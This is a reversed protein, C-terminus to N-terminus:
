QNSSLIDRGGILRTDSVKVFGIGEGSTYSQELQYCQEVKNEEKIRIDKVQTAIVESNKKFRPKNLNSDFRVGKETYVYSDNKFLVHAYNSFLHLPQRLKLKVNKFSIFEDKEKIRYFYESGNSYDIMEDFDDINAKRDLIIKKGSKLYKNIQKGHSDYLKIKLFGGFTETTANVENIYLFNGNVKDVNVAKIYGGHGLSYYEKGKITKYPLYFWNWEDDHFSYRKASPDTIPKVEKAYEVSKNKKLLSSKGQFKKLKKGKKNYVRANHNLELTGQENAVDKTTDEVAHAQNTNTMLSVASTTLLLTAALGLLAKKNKM